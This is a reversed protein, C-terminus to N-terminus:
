AYISFGFMLLVMLSISDLTFITGVVFVRTGAFDVFMRPFIIGFKSWELAYGQYWLRVYM